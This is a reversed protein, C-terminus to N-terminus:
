IHILSLGMASESPQIPGVFETGIGNWDKFRIGLKLTSDTNYLFDIEDIGWKKFEKNVVKALLGTSGEGAGIIPIKSSEIVTIENVNESSHNYRAFYCAAMWGATGGGVIVIKM